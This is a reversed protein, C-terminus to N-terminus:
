FFIYSIKCEIYIYIYIKFCFKKLHVYSYIICVFSRWIELVENVNLFQSKTLEFQQYIGLLTSLSM